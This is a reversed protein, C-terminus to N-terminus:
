EAPQSAPRSDPHEHIHGPEPPAPDTRPQHVDALLDGHEIVAHCDGERPAVTVIARCERAATAVAERDLPKVTHMSLVRCALGERALDEASLSHGAALAADIPDAASRSM